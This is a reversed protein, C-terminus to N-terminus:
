FLNNKADVLHNEKCAVGSANQMDEQYREVKKRKERTSKDFYNHPRVFIQTLSKFVACVDFSFAESHKSVTQAAKPYIKSQFNHGIELVNSKTSFKM